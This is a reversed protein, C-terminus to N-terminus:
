LRLVLLPRLRDLRGLPLIGGYFKRWRCLCVLFGIMRMLKFFGLSLSRCLTPWFRLFLRFFTLRAALFRFLRRPVLLLALLWM